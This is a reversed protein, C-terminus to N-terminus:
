WVAASPAQDSEDSKTRYTILAILALIVLTALERSSVGRLRMPLGPKELLVFLAAIQLLASNSMARLKLAARSNWSATAIEEPKDIDAFQMAAALIALMFAYCLFRGWDHAIVFLPICYLGICALAAIFREFGARSFCTVLAILGVFALAAIRLIKVAFHIAARKSSFDEQKELVILTKFDPTEIPDAFHGHQPFLIASYTLHPQVHSWAASLLVLAGLLLTSIIFDRFRPKSKLFLPLVPALFFM